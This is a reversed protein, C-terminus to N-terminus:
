GKRFASPTIGTEKKFVTSMQKSNAFGIKTALTTMPEKTEKLLKKAEDIRLGLLHAEVTTKLNEDLLKILEDESCGACKAIDAASLDANTFSDKMCALAKDFPQEQPAKEAKEVTKEAAQEQAAKALGLKVLIAAVITVPILLIKKLM